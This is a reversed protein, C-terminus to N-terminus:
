KGEEMSYAEAVAMPNIHENNGGAVYVLETSSSVCCVFFSRVTPM